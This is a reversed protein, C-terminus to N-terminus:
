QTQLIGSHISKFLVGFEKEDLSTKMNKFARQCNKVAEKSIHDIEKEKMGIEKGTSPLGIKKLLNLLSEPTFFKGMEKMEKEYGHKELYKLAYPLCLANATGHHLNYNITLSYAMGHVLITGTHNIAFGALLSGLLVKTKAEVRGKEKVASPLFEIILKMSENCFIKTLNTARLSLYSEISHCLADMGTGAVLKESLTLLLLPDLLAVKPIIKESSITKKTKENRDIIVAYRTVESGTGCTTPVAFVPLPENNIESEGYFDKINQSNTSLIAIAKGVDMASGGGLALIVDVNEKKAAEAGKECDSTAPEPSVDSFVSYKVNAKELINKTKQMLGSEFIFNKGSVILVKKGYSSIIPLNEELCKEQFFVKTPMYFRIKEM